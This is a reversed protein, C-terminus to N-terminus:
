TLKNQKQSRQATQCLFPEHCYIVKNYNHQRKDDFLSRTDHQINKTNFEGKTDIDTVWEPYRDYIQTYIYM